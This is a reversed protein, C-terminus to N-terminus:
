FFIDYQPSFCPKIWHCERQTISLLIQRNLAYLLCTSSSWAKKARTPNPGFSFMEATNYTFDVGWVRLIYKRWKHTHPPPVKWYIWPIYNGTPLSHCPSDATKVKYLITCAFSIKFLCHWSIKSKLNKEHILKGLGRESYIQLSPWAVTKKFGCIRPSLGCDCIRLNRLYAFGCIEKSQDTFQFNQQHALGCIAFGCIKWWLVSLILCRKKLNGGKIAFSDLLWSCTQKASNKMQYFNSNSCKLYTNALLFIFFEWIQPLQLDAIFKPWCIQLDCFINPWCIEFGCIAGCASPGCIHWIKFTWLNASKWLCPPLHNMFFVQLLFDQSVTVKFCFM